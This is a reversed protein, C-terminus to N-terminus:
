EDEPINMTEDKIDYKTVYRQMENALTIIFKDAGIKALVEHIDDESEAEWHCFWFDEDGLWTQLCKVKENQTNEFWEKVSVGKSGEFYKKRTEESHFTHTCMFHKKLM